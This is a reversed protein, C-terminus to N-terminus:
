SNISVLDLLFKSKCLSLLMLSLVILTCGIAVLYRSGFHDFIPGVQVGVFFVLFLYLSFIWGIQSHSYDKLQYTKFYSEFVASTNILGYISVMACFSGFVVLWATLGGEPFTHSDDESSQGHYQDDTSPDDPNVGGHHVNKESDKGTCQATSRNVRANHGLFDHYETQETPSARHNKLCSDEAYNRPTSM